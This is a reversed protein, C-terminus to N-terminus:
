ATQRHLAVLYRVVGLLLAVVFLACFIIFLESIPLWPGVVGLNGAFLIYAGLTLMMALLGRELATLLRMFRSPPPLGHPTRRILREYERESIPVYLRREINRDFQAQLRSLIVSEVTNEPIPVSTLANALLWDRHGAILEPLPRGPLAQVILEPALALSQRRDTTVARRGDSLRSAVAITAFIRERTRAVIRQYALSVTFEGDDRVHVMTFNEASGLTPVRQCLKMRLGLGPCAELAPRWRDVVHAPIQDFDVLDLQEPYIVASFTSGPFRLTKLLALFLFSIVNSSLRWCEGYTLRWYVVRYCRTAVSGDTKPAAYPNFEPDDTAEINSVTDRVAFLRVLIV